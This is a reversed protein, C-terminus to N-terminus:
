WRPGAGTAIAVVRSAHHLRLTTSACLDTTATPGACPSRTGGNAPLFQSANLSSEKVQRGTVSNPKLRKGSIRNAAYVSGGLAVFLALYAVLTAHSPRRLRL